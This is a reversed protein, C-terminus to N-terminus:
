PVAASRRPTEVKASKRQVQFRVFQGGTVPFTKAFWGHQERRVCHIGFLGDSAGDTPPTYSFEPAIEDRPSKSSWGEPLTIRTEDAGLPLGIFSSILTLFIVWCSLNRVM